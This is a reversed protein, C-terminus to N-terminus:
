PGAGTQIRALHGAVARAIPKALGIANSSHLISNTSVIREVGARKLLEHANGSFLPHIVVCVPSPLELRRLHEAAAALTRGTSVIDDVLVPTFGRLREPDPASVEVERDGCRRKHLLEYPIQAERAIEAVWQVSEEDPGILIPNSVERRIWNALEPASAVCSVPIRYLEDLRAVRHLHPDVTVLWDLCQDLFRAFVSAAIAEGPRFRADQRMYALYPAVLGVSRAGLEKATQAVFRVPLAKRDPDALSAFIIVDAGEIGDDIRILSEGDPFHRWELLGMRAHLERSVSGVLAGDDPFSLAVLTM